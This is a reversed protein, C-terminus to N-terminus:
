GPRDRRTRLEAAAPLTADRGMRRSSDVLALSFPVLLLALLPWGGGDTGGPGAGAFGSALVPARTPPLPRRLTKRPSPARAPRDPRVSAQAHTVAVARLTWASATPPVPTGTPGVSTPSDSASDLPPQAAFDGPDGGDSGSLGRFIWDMVEADAAPLFGVAVIESFLATQAPAAIAQASPSGPSLVPAPISGPLAPLAPVAPAVVVLVIPRRSRGM